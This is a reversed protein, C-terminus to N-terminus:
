GPSIDCNAWSGRNENQALQDAKAYRPYRQFPGDYPYASALGRKVMTFGLDHNGRDIYALLRGYHDRRDQTPDSTVRVQQDTALRKMAASAAPGGCEEGGYVEPTDIGIIRITEVAGSPTTVDLTDGDAVSVVTGQFSRPPAVVDGDPGSGGDGAFSCPCPLTACAVGDGDGDLGFPDGAILYRQAQAQSAFAGCDVDGGSRALARARIRVRREAARAKLKARRAAARARAAERRAEARAAIAAKRAARRAAIREARIEARTQANSQGQGTQQGSGTGATESTSGCGAVVAILLGALAALTFSRVVPRVLSM